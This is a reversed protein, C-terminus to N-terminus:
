GKFTVITVPPSAFHKGCAEVLRPIAEDLDKLTPLMFNQPRTVRIDSALELDCATRFRLGDHLLRRIKYLGLAILLQECVDGLRFGRIQALDVNFYATIDGCYEDRHFPVHGFGKKSDGSPDVDDRKVGGSPAVVVNRAEVFSSIVRPM